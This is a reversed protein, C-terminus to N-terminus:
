RVQLIDQPLVPAGPDGFRAQKVRCTHETASAVAAADAAVADPVELRRRLGRLAVDLEYLVAAHVEADGVAAGALIAGPVPVMGAVAPLVAAPAPILGAAM